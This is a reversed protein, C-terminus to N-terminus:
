NVFTFQINLKKGWKKLRDEREEDSISTNDNIEMMRETSGSNDGEATIFRALRAKAMDPYTTAVCAPSPRDRIQDISCGCARAAFGICCMKKNVDDFLSSHISGIGRLWRRRDVIVKLLPYKSKSM